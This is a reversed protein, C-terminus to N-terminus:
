RAKLWNANSSHSRTRAGTTVPTTARPKMISMYASSRRWGAKTKGKRHPHTSDLAYPKRAPAQGHNIYCMELERALVVEPYQTM